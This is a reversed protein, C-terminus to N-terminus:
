EKNTPVPIDRRGRGIEIIRLLWSGSRDADGAYVVGSRGSRGSLQETWPRARTSRKRKAPNNM